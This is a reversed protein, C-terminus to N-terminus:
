LRRPTSDSEIIATMVHRAVARYADDVNAPWNARDEDVMTLHNLLSDQLKQGDVNDPLDIQWSNPLEHILPIAVEPSGPGAPILATAISRGVDKNTDGGGPQASNADINSVGSKKLDEATGAGMKPENSPAERGAATRAEGIEGQSIRAFSDGLVGNANKSFSFEEGYKAKWDKRFSDIRGNLKAFGDPSTYHGLRTRDADVFHKVVDKFGGNTVAAETTTALTNRIDGADPAPTAAIASKLQKESVAKTEKAADLTKDASHDVAKANDVPTPQAGIGPAVFVFSAAWMAAATFLVRGGHMHVDTKM